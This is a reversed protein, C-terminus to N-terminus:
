TGLAVSSNFFFENPTQFNLSKRPRNNLRNEVFLIDEDTILRFDYNKPFYQRILGNINENLGREWSRYPHAFYIDADLEAAIQKHLAFEKGNDVTLTHVKDKFSGLKQNIAATVLDATKHPVRKLCTLQSKREVVSVMAGQHNKGIITDGEWDGLRTKQAVVAPREDISVRNQIQGRRDNSGYRKRKKKHSWRLHRYLSGGARKDAWVHQYITEHCIHIHERLKLYGSIQEPSWDQKLYFEVREKVAPTFHVHKAALFRRAATKLQAQRPRYGKAGTNRKLERSVTTKDVGIQKAIQYLKLGIKLYAKIAVRQEFTLQKYHM